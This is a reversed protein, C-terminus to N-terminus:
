PSELGYRRMFERATATVLTAMGISEGGARQGVLRREFRGVPRYDVPVLRRPMEPPLPTVESVTWGLGAADGIAEALLSAPTWGAGIAAVAVEESVPVMVRFGNWEEIESGIDDNRV